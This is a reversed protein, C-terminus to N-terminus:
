QVFTIREKTLPASEDVKAFQVKAGFQPPIYRSPVHYPASPAGHQFELLAQKVYGDMSLRVTRKNYDWKLHIGVYQKAEEDVKFKYYKEVAAQLHELDDKRTYKILFDDVVLTFSIDQSEHRFYGEVLPM